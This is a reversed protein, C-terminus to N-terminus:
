PAPETAPARPEAPPPPSDGSADLESLLDRARVAAVTGPYRRVLRQLSFRGAASDKRDLYWQAVYLMQEAASEDISRLLASTPSAPQAEAPYFRHFEEILLRAELLGSGDYRPGKFRGLTAEIRRQMVRRRHETDPFNILLIEYTEAALRLEGTRFYYDALELQAREALRSGPLRESVRVLLEEAIDGAGVIRLGFFRRKRGRAFQVAIELERSVAPVFHESSPFDNIVREYDRLARREYGLLANADGRLLYAEALLPHDTRRHQEIWRTVLHRAVAAQNEALLSRVRAILAEDTGPEPSQHPVWQGDELRYEVHQARAPLAVASLAFAAAVLQRM